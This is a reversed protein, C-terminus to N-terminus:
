LEGREANVFRKVGVFISVLLGLALGIALTFLWTTQYRGVATVVLTIFGLRAFFSRRMRQVAAVVELDVSRLTDRYLWQTYLFGIWYGLIAGILNINHTFAIALFLMATGMLLPMSNNKTM